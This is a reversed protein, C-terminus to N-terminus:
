RVMRQQISKKSGKKTLVVFFVVLVGIAVAFIIAVTVLFEQSAVAQLTAQIIPAVTQNYTSTSNLTPPLMSGWGAANVTFTVTDYGAPGSEISSAYVTINHTGRDLLLMMNNFATNNHKGDVSYATWYAKQDITFNLTLQTTNYTKNMPSLISVKPLTSPENSDVIFFVTQTYVQGAISAFVKLSYNGNQLNSLTTNGEVTFNFGNLSAWVFRTPESVHFTLPVDRSTYTTNQPQILSLDNQQANVTSFPNFLVFGSLLITILFISTKAKNM